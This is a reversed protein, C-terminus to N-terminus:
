KAAGKAARAKKPPTWNSLDQKMLHELYKTFSRGDEKAKIKAQAALSPDFAFTIKPFM